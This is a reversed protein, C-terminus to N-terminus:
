HRDLSGILLKTYKFDHSCFFRLFCSYDVSLKAGCLWLEFFFGLQWGLLVIEFDLGGPFAFPALGDGFDSAPLHLVIGQLFNGLLQFILTAATASSFIPRDFDLAIMAGLNLFNQTLQAISRFQTSALPIPTLPPHTPLSNEM